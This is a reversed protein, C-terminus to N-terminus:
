VSMKMKQVLNAWFHHKGDLVSFTFVVMSNQMNSNTETAFKLKFQCNHNKSGFKGLFPAEWRFCSFHIGGNFEAYEFWHLYWIEALGVIRIKRVLNAWFPFKWDFVSFNCKHMRGDDNSVLNFKEARPGVSM